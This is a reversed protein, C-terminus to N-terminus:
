ARARRRVSLVPGVTAGYAVDDAVQPLQPLVRMRAFRRGILGLDLAAIALGALVGWAPTRRAPLTAALVQAWGLSLAAHVPAAAAFLVAPRRERPLLMAGAALSAELPDRGTALAYLTSPAGGLVAAVSGAALGDCVIARAKV